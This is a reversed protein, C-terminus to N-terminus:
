NTKDSLILRAMCFERSPDTASRVAVTFTGEPSEVAETLWEDGEMAEHRFAIDFRSVHRLDYVSVPLIDLVLNVYRVTTVHRNFDIDTALFRYSGERRPTSEAPFRLKPQPAIPCRRTSVTDALSAIGSLDAPRRTSINIAVWVTRIYGIVEGGARIEFNRESFHRNFSEIWTTLSYDEHMAPMRSTEISIRSLVWACGDAILRDYGVGIMNAHDTALEIVREVLTALPLQGQASCGAATIHWTHTLETPIGPTTSM